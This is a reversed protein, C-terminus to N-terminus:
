TTYRTILAGVLLIAGIAIAPIAVERLKRVLKATALDINELEGRLGYGCDRLVMNCAIGAGLFLMAEAFLLDEM